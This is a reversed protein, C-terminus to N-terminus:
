KLTFAIPPSDYYGKGDAAVVRVVASHAGRALTGAPVTTSFGVSVLGPIKKFEAVDGRPLGYNTPWAKGDVVVDVGKGPALAVPDFGFGDLLVPGDAATVAPKRNMPDLADGAHDLYFGPMGPRMSLGGSVGPGSAPPLDPAEHMYALMPDPPVHRVKAKDCAGLALVASLGLFLTASKTMDGLPGATFFSWPERHWMGDPDSLDL